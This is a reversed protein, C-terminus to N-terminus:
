FKGITLILTPMFVVRLVDDTRLKFQAYLPVYYLVSSIWSAGTLLMHFHTYYYYYHELPQGLLGAMSWVGLTPLALKVHVMPYAHVHVYM